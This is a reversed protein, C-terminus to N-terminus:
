GHAERMNVIIYCKGIDRAPMSFLASSFNSLPVAFNDQLGIRSGDHIVYLTEKIDGFPILASDDLRIFPTISPTYAAMSSTLTPLSVVFLVSFTVFASAAKSQLVHGRCFERLLRFWGTITPERHLFLLWFTTYTAPTTAMSTTLYDAFV